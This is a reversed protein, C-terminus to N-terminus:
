SIAARMRDFEEVHWIDTIRGHAGIRIVDMGNIEFSKGAAEIGMMPAGIHTGRMTWRDAVYDGDVIYQHIQMQLNPVSETMWGIVDAIGDIGARQNPAPNHDIVGPAYVEWGVAANGRAWMDEIHRRGIALNRLETPTPQASIAIAAGAGPDHDTSTACPAFDPTRAQGFPVEQQGLQQWFQLMEEVHWLEVIQGDAVRVMDIGSFEVRRGTPEAGFLAGTHTGRLTWFDVGIDGAALTGTLTMTLDPMARRFDDVVQKMAERGAAQGPVPMHDVCDRAYNTDVLDTMGRGWVDEIQARLLERIM